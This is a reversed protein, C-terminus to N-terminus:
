SFCGAAQLRFGEGWAVDKGAERQAEYSARIKGLFPTCEVPCFLQNNAYTVSTM